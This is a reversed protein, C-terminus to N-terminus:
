SKPDKRVPRLAEPNSRAIRFVLFPDVLRPMFSQRRAEQGEETDPLDKTVVRTGSLRDHLARREPDALGTAGIAGTLLMGLWLLPIPQAAGLPLWRLFSQSLRPNLGTSADVVRVGLLDKGPTSGTRTIFGIEYVAYLVVFTVTALFWRGWPEPTVSDSWLQLHIFIHAISLAFMWTAVAITDVLRAALRRAM